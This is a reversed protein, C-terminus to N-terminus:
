LSSQQRNCYPIGDDVDKSNQQQKTMVKEENSKWTYHAFMVLGLIVGITDNDVAAAAAGGRLLHITRHHPLIISYSTLLLLLSILM